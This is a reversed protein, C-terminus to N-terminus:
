PQNPLPPACAIFNLNVGFYPAPYGRHIQSVPRQPERHLMCCAGGHELKQYLKALLLCWCSIQLCSTIHPPLTLEGLARGAPLLITSVVNEWLLDCSLISHWNTCSFNWGSQPWQKHWSQDLLFCIGLCFSGALLNVSSIYIFSLLSLAPPPLSVRWILVCSQCTWFSLPFPPPSPLFPM